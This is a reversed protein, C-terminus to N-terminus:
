PPDQQKSISIPVPFDILVTATAPRINRSPYMRRISIIAGVLTHATHGCSNSLNPSKGFLTASSSPSWLVRTCRSFHSVAAVGTIPTPVGYYDVRIRDLVMANARGTRVSGFLGHLATIAKEMREEAELLIEEDM